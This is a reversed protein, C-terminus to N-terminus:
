REYGKSYVITIHYRFYHKLIVDWQPGGGKRCHLQNTDAKKNMKNLSPQNIKGGGVKKRKWVVALPKKKKQTISIYPIFLQAFLSLGRVLAM